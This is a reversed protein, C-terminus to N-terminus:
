IFYPTPIKDYSSNAGENTQIVKIKSAMDILDSITNAYGSEVMAM